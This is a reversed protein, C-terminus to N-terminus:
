HCHETIDVVSAKKWGFIFYGVGAGLVVAICLTGNYTMFILMLFYSAVIQVIHLATQLTHQWSLMRHKEVKHVQTVRGSEGTIAVTSFQISSVYQKFLYERYYKLGEYLMGMLFVGIFSAIMGGITTIKWEKFLVVENVSFHFYMAMGDMDHKGTKNDMDMDMDGMDGMDDKHNHEHPADMVMRESFGDMVHSHGSTDCSVLSCAALFVLCVVLRSM